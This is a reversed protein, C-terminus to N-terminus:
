RPPAGRAALPPRRPVYEGLATSLAGRRPAQPRAPQGARTRRPPAVAAPVNGGRSGGGGGGGPSGRGSGARPPGAGEGRQSLGERQGRGPGRAAAHARPRTPARLRPAPSRPRVGGAAPRPAGAKEAAAASSQAQLEASCAREQRDQLLRPGLRRGVWRCGVGGGEAVWALGRLFPLSSLLFRLLPVSNM